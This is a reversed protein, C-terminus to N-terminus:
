ASSLCNEDSWESLFCTETPITPYGLTPLDLIMLVRLFFFTQTTAGIAPSVTLRADVAYM